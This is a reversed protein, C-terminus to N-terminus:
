RRDLGSVALLKQRFVFYDCILVGAIPGLLGSYGVLWGFIYRGYGVMLKWPQMILGMFCTILGGARFSIRRPSLNSFVDAPSVVNAAVNVNLTAILLAIM